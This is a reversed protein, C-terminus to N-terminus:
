INIILFQIRTIIGLAFGASYTHASHTLTIKSEQNKAINCCFLLSKFSYTKSTTALNVEPQEPMLVNGRATYSM